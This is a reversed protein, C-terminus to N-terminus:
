YKLVSVRFTGAGPSIATATNNYCKITVTNAATVYATYIGAAATNAAPIGVVVPDGTVAGTVTITATSTSTAATTFTLSATATLTKALTYRTTGSTAYYNTGDFEVAGDEPTTLNTGATLKLPATNATATGAKLHLVATPATTGIGLNGLRFSSNSGSGSTGSAGIVLTPGGNLVDPQGFQWETTNGTVKQNGARTEFRINSTIPSATTGTRFIFDVLAASAGLTEFIAGNEANRNHLRLTSSGYVDGDERMVLEKAARLTGSTVDGITIDGTTGTQASVGNVIRFREINNAKFVMDQADLTGIFQTGPTTGSNGNLLWVSNTSAKNNFTNWDTNSLLGATVGTVSALPINLTHASGASSWAPATGTTGPTAFTQTAATLGNLSTIASSLYTPTTNVWRTGNYQLLQNAAPTTILFLRRRLFVASKYEYLFVM